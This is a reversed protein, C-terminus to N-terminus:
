VMKYVDCGPLDGFLIEENWCLSNFKVDPGFCQAFIGKTLHFYQGVNNAHCPIEFIAAIGSYVNHWIWFVTCCLRECKTIFLFITCNHKHIRDTHWTQQLSLVSASTLYRGNDSHQPLQIVLSAANILTIQDTYVTRLKWGSIQSPAVRYCRGAWM